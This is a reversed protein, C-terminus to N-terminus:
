LLRHTNTNTVLRHMLFLVVTGTYAAPFNYLLHNPKLNHLYIEMQRPDIENCGIVDYGAMKFGQSSGGGGAFFSFVKYGNKTVKELDKLNWKYTFEM